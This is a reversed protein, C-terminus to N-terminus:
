WQEIGDAAGQNRLESIPSVSRSCQLKDWPWVSKLVWIPPFAMVLPFLECAVPSPTMRVLGAIQSMTMNATPEDYASIVVVVRKPVTM